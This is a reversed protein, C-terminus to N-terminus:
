HWIHFLTSKMFEKRVPEYVKPAEYEFDEPEDGTPEPADRHEYLSNFLHM